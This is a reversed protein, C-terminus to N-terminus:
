WAANIYWNTSEGGTHYVWGRYQRTPAGSSRYFYGENLSLDWYAVSHWSDNADARYHIQFKGDPGVNLGHNCGGLARATSYGTYFYIAPEVYADSAESQGSPMYGATWESWTYTSPWIESMWSSWSSCYKQYSERALKIDGSLDRPQAEAMGAAALRHHERELAEPVQAEPAIARFIELATAEQEDFAVVAGLTAVGTFAIGVVVEEVGDRVSSEDYFVIKGDGLEVEAIVPASEEDVSTIPADLEIWSPEARQDQLEADLEPDCASLLAVCTAASLLKSSLSPLTEHQNM